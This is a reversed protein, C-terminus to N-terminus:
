ANSYKCSYISVNFYLLVRCQESMLDSTNLQRRESPSSFLGGFFICKNLSAESDLYVNTYLFWHEFIYM